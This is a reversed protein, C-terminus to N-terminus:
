AGLRALGCFSTAGRQAWATKMFVGQYWNYAVPNTRPLDWYHTNFWARADEGEPVPNPLTSLYSFRSVMGAANGPHQLDAFAIAFRNADIEADYHDPLRPRDTQDSAWHGLEHGVLFNNFLTDFLEEPPRGPFDHAAWQMFIGQIPPPLTEWRGILLTRQKGDYSIVAPTTLVQVSPVFHVEVGCDRVAQVFRDRDRSVRSELSNDPGPAVATLLVALAASLGCRYRISLTM